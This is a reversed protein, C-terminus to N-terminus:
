PAIGILISDSNFESMEVITYDGSIEIKPKFVRRSELEIGEWRYMGGDIKLKISWNYPSYVVIKDKSM